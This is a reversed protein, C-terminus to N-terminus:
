KQNVAIRNLGHLIAAQMMAAELQAAKSQAVLFSDHVPLVVIGQGIMTTMVMEAISADINMLRAGADSHFSAAIPLHLQKIDEILMDATHLADQSGPHEMRENHAISHRASHITPANILTLMAVKVLKRDWGKIAYCDAPPIAGVEAYLISPHLTSFDLEAVPEGAIEIQKRAEAKMNQWSSGQAYFRGGRGFSQNYIRAMPATISIDIDGGTIAENFAETRRRMRGLERTDKYDALHGAANRLLIVESPRRLLPQQGALLATCITRLENTAKMASQWGRAGPARRDHEILGEAALYDVQGVVKRFTYLSNRYRHPVDYHRSTRSYSVWDPISCIDIIIATGTKDVKLERKFDAWFNKSEFRLSLPKQHGEVEDM